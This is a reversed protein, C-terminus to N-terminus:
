QPVSNSIEAICSASCFEAAAFASPQRLLEPTYQLKPHLEVRWAAAYGDGSVHLAVGCVAQGDTCASVTDNEALCVVSGAQVTEDAMCTVVVQGIEEYSINM